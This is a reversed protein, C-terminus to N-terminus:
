KVRISKIILVVSEIIIIFSLLFAAYIDTEQTKWKLFMINLATFFTIAFIFLSRALLFRFEKKQKIQISLILSIIAFVISAGISFKCSLIFDVTQGGTLAAFAKFIIFVSIIIIVICNLLVSKMQSKAFEFADQAPIDIELSRAFSIIMHFSFTFIFLSLSLLFLSKSFYYGATQAFIMIFSLVLVVPLIFKEKIM